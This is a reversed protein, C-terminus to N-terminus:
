PKPVTVPVIVWYVTLCALGRVQLKYELPPIPLSIYSSWDICWSPRDYLSLILPSPLPPLPLHSQSPHPPPFPLLHLCNYSFSFLYIFKFFSMSFLYIFLYIDKWHTSRRLSCGRCMNVGPTHLQHFSKGKIAPSRAVAFKKTYLAVPMILLSTSSAERLLCFVWNTSFFFFFFLYDTM